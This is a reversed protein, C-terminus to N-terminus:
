IGAIVEVWLFLTVTLGRKNSTDQLFAGAAIAEEV